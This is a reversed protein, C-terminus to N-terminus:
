IFIYSLLIFPHVAQFSGLTVSSVHTLGLCPAGSDECVCLGRRLYYINFIFSWNLTCFCLLPVQRPFPPTVGWLCYQSPRFFPSEPPVRPTFGQTGWAFAPPLFASALTPPLSEPLDGISHPWDGERLAEPTHSATAATPTPSGRMRGGNREEHFAQPNCSPSLFLHLFPASPLSLCPVPSRCVPSQPVPCGM